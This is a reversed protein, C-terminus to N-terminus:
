KKEPAKQGAAPAPPEAPEEDAEGPKVIRIKANDDLGVGGVVVIRDGPSVGRVIQVQDPERVGIEVEKQHITNDAGITDVIVKGEDNTLVASAPVLTVDPLVETVITVRVTAGPKLREGPNAAQVWVQVTTSAPDTSPSVVGVKAQIEDPSDGIKISAPQGVKVTMAQAQPINVVAKVSSIDVITMM